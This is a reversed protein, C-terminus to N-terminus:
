EYGHRHNTEGAIGDFIRVDQVTLEQRWREDLRIESTTDLRMGNGVVHQELTRFERYQKGSNVGLFQQVRSLTVDPIRCYDEYRVEIWQSPSLRRLIHEAEEVCRRWNYAAQEMSLRQNERKGGMGGERRTPDKADAFRAPNMYTLAVARGDRILRIVKVDLEPNRLLYKLRLAIKSSDVVIKAGAMEAVTDVLAANRRHLQPLHKRWVPSLSLAVDRVGELFRGRHMSGLLRKVYYSEVTRYDTDANGLDFRFGRDAMGENIKQWFRCQRIFEGCSCRYRDLEGMAVSSLKLEGVTAIQPHAGLLM